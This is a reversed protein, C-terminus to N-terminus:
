KLQKQIWNPNRRCDLVRWVQIETGQLKYYIGYPFRRSLLRYYGSFTQHSGAFLRLSEIDSYLTDLFCSGVGEAQREYFKFGALLDREALSLIRINM